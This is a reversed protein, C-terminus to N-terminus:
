SKKFNFEINCDGFSLQGSGVKFNDYRFILKFKATFAAGDQRFTM